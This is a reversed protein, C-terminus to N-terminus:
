RGSKQRYVIEPAFYLPTGLSMIEKAGGKLRRASGFDSLKVYGDDFVLVNEAKLDWFVINRQHLYELGLIICGLIFRIGNEGTEIFLPQRTSFPKILSYVDGAEALELVM